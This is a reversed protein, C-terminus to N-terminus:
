RFPLFKWFNPGHITPESIVLLHRFIKLFKSSKHKTWSHTQYSKQISLDTSAMRRLSPKEFTKTIFRSWNSLSSIKFIKDWNQYKWVYTNNKWIEHVLILIVPKWLFINWIYCARVLFSNNDNVAIEFEYVFCLRNHISCTELLLNKIWFKIIIVQCTGLYEFEHKLAM